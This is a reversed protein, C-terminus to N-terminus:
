LKVGLVAVSAIYIGDRSNSLLTQNLIPRHVFLNIGILYRGYTYSATIGPKYFISALKRKEVKTEYSLVQGNSPDQFWESVYHYTTNVYCVGTGLYISTYFKSTQFPSYHLNIGASTYRLKRWQSKLAIDFYRQSMLFDDVAKPDNYFDPFSNRWAHSLFVEYSWRKKFKKQYGLQFALANAEDFFIINPTTYALGFSASIAVEKPKRSNIDQHFQGFAVESFILVYLPLCFRRM